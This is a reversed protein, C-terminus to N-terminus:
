GGLEVLRRRYHLYNAYPTEPPTGHDITPIYGGRAHMTPVIREVMADIERKGKALVRKDMGGSLILSPYERGTRVVDCDSAVEFPSFMDVGIAERYLPIVPDCFGDTDIQVYLKRSRDIQRERVKAVLQQYYPFLFERMMDPSILSGHNYCIDEALFLEDLTVHRQHEATVADALRLWAQMCDHIVEPHDYFMFLLDGPGILSRLYMYGGILKQSIILGQAAAAQAQAMREEQGAFRGPAAPDLRWKVDECWTKMDKVPHDIYEPMFGCRRNKFFLVHRGASDQIVETDGRDEIVKTEFAPVFAAECWGLQGLSHHGPPDFKFLEEWPVDPPMGEGKWRELTDPMLWFEWRFLPAGPVRAYADRLKRASPLMRDRPVLAHVGDAVSATTTM